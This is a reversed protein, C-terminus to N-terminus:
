THKSDYGPEQNDLLPVLDAGIDLKTTTVWLVEFNTGVSGNMFAVVYKVVLM